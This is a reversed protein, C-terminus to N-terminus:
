NKGKVFKMCPGGKCMESKVKQDMAVGKPLMQQEKNDIEKLQKIKKM